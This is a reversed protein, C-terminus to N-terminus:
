KDVWRGESGGVSGALWGGWFVLGLVSYVMYINTLHIFLCKRFTEETLLQPCALPSVPFCPGLDTHAPGPAQDQQVLRPLEPVYEPSCVTPGRAAAEGGSGM